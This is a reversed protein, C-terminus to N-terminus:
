LKGNDKEEIGKKYEVMELIAFHGERFIKEFKRFYIATIKNGKRWIKKDLVNLM